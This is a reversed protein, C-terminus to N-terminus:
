LKCGWEPLGPNCRQSWLSIDICRQLTSVSASWLWMARCCCAYSATYTTVTCCKVISVVFNLLCSFVCAFVEALNKL